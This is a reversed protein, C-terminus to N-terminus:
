REEYELILEDTKPNYTFSKEFYEYNPNNCIYDIKGENWTVSRNDMQPDSERGIEVLEAECNPCKLCSWRFFYDCNLILGDIKFFGRCKVGVGLGWLSLLVASFNSGYGTISM